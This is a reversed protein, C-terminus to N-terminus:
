SRRAPGAPVESVPGEAPETELAEIEKLLSKGRPTLRYVRGSQPLQAENAGVIEALKPDRVPKDADPLGILPKLDANLHAFAMVQQFTMAPLSGGTM